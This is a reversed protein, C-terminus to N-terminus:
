LGRNKKVAEWAANIESMKETAKKIMEEPAGNAALADPHYNKCLYRYAARLKDDTWSKDAGLTRYAKDLDTEPSRRTDKGADHYSTKERGFYKNYYFVFEETHLQLALVVQKLETLEADSITGDVAAMEWLIEYMMWRIESGRYGARCFSEAYDCISYADDKAARFVSICYKLLDDKIGFTSFVQEALRIESEDVRGDAKAIKAMMASMSAYYKCDTFWRRYIENLGDVDSTWKHKNKEVFAVTIAGLLAVIFSLKSSEFLFAVSCFLFAFALLAQGIM